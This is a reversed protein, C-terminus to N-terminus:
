VRKKAIALLGEAFVRPASHLLKDTIAVCASALGPLFREFPHPVLQLHYYHLTPTEFGAATMMSSLKRPTHFTLRFRREKFSDEDFPLPLRRLVGRAFSSRRTADIVPELVLAPSLRNTSAIMARQNPKLVRGIERLTPLPDPLYELLGSCNVADFRSSAFPLLGADGRVLGAGGGLRSRASRLMDPSSDIGFPALGLKVAELLFYGPGCAVDLISSGAPLKLDPLLGAVLRHRDAILTRHGSKYQRGEYRDADHSFVEEVGRNHDSSNM